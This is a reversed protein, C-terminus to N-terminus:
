AVEHHQEVRRVSQGRRLYQEIPSGNAMSSSVIGTDARALPLRMWFEGPAGRSIMPTSQPSWNNFDGAIAVSNAQAFRAAFVVEDGDRKVGYFDAIKKRRRGPFCAEQLSIIRWTKRKPPLSTAPGQMGEAELALRGGFQIEVPKTAALAAEMEEVEVAPAASPQSLVTNRGFQLNTLQSLQKARQV